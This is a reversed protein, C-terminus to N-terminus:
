FYANEFMKYQKNIHILPLLYRGKQANSGFENSSDSIVFIVIQNTKQTDATIKTEFSRRKCFILNLFIKFAFGARRTQKHKLTLKM